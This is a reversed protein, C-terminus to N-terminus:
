PFKSSEAAGKERSSFFTRPSLDGILMLSNQSFCWIKIHEFNYNCQGHGYGEFTREGRDGDWSIADGCKKEGLSSFVECNNEFVEQSIAKMGRELEKDERTQNLNESDTLDHVM